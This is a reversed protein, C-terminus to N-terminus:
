LAQVSSTQQNTLERITVHTCVFLLVPCNLLSETPISFGRLIYGKKTFTDDKRDGVYYLFRLNEVTIIKYERRYTSAVTVSNTVTVGSYPPLTKSHLRIGTECKKFGTNSFKLEEIRSNGYIIKSNYKRHGVTPSRHQCM